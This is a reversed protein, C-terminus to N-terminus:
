CYDSERKFDEPLPAKIVVDKIKIFAAHLMVRPVPRHFKKGYHYDGLLPHGLFAMHVRIQHTRGTIPFCAVLTAKKYRKKVVFHTIAPLGQPFVGMVVQGAYRKLPAIGEQIIGQDQKIVGEVLALYGKKVLRKRFQEIFPKPDKKAFLLVGSTEKDLRHILEYPQLDQLSESSIFPPKDYALLQDDEYLIRKKDFTIAEPHEQIQLLVKDGPRLRRSGFREKAGNM